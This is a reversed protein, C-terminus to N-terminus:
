RRGNPVAMYFATPSRRRAKSASDGIHDGSDGLPVFRIMPQVIGLHDVGSEAMDVQDSAVPTRKGGEVFTDEAACEHRGLAVQAARLQRGGRAHGVGGQM